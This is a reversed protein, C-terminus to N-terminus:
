AGSRSGLPPAENESSAETTRGAGGTQGEGPGRERPGRGPLPPPVPRRDLSRLPKRARPKVQRDRRSKVSVTNAYGVKSLNTVQKVETSCRKKRGCAGPDHTNDAYFTFHKRKPRIPTCESVRTGQDSGWQHPAQPDAQGPCLDSHTVRHSGQRSERHVPSKSTTGGATLWQGATLNKGQWLQLEGNLHCLVHYPVHLEKGLRLALFTNSFSFSFPWGSRAPPCSM